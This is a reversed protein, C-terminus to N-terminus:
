QYARIAPAIVKKRQIALLQGCEVCRQCHYQGTPLQELTGADKVHKCPTFEKAKDTM